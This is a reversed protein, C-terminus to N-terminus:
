TDRCSVGHIDTYQLMQGVRDPTVYEVSPSQFLLSADSAQREDGNADRSRLSRSLSSIAIFSLAM